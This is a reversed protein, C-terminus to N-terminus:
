RVFRNHKLWQACLSVGAAMDFKPEYGLESRARDIPYSARRSYLRFEAGSPTQRVKGELGKMAKKALNSRQYVAMIQKEYHKLLFKATTKVPLMAAARLRSSALGTARLPPLGMADNLAEFYAQWTPLDPGNINYAKGAADPKKLALLGAQVVDDVYVLNCIGQCDQAPLMWANAAMREAPEITWLDSFPGYVVTPRLMVVPLGARNAAECAEEAAIKSDGYASGSVRRPDVERQEGEAGGYVEITSLFVFREVGAERAADLLVKTGDVNVASNGRACHIVQRIGQMATRAQAPEMIDLRKADLPLRGIRAATSWRRITARVQGPRAASLVEVFRAGIFGGAGTVLLDPAPSM